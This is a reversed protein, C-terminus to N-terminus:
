VTFVTHHAHAPSAADFQSSPMHSLHLHTVHRLKRADGIPTPVIRRTHPAISFVAALYVGVSRLVGVLGWIMRGLPSPGERLRSLPGGKQADCM